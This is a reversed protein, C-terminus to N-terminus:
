ILDDITELCVILFASCGAFNTKSYNQHCAMPFAALFPMATHFMGITAGTSTGSWCGIYDTQHLAFPVEAFDTRSPTQQHHYCGM